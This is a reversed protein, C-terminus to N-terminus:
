TSESLGLVLFRPNLSLPTSLGRNPPQDWFRRGEEFFFIVLCGRLRKVNLGLQFFSSASSLRRDGMDGRQQAPTEQRRESEWWGFVIGVM